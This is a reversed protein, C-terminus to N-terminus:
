TTITKANASGNAVRFSLENWVRDFFDSHNKRKSVQFLRDGKEIIELLKSPTEQLYEQISAM